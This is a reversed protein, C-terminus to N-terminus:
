KTGAAARNAGFFLLVM